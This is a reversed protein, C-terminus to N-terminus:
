VPELGLTIMGPWTVMMASSAKLPFLYREVSTMGSLTVTIPVLANRSQVESVLTEIDFLTTLILPLANLAQSDRCSMFKGRERFVILSKANQLQEERVAASMGDEHMISEYANSAVGAFIVRM